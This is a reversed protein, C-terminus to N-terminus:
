VWAAPYSFINEKPQQHDRQHANQWLFIDCIYGSYEEQIKRLNALATRNPHITTKITTKNVNKIKVWVRPFIRWNSQTWSFDWQSKRALVGRFLAGVFCVPHAISLDKTGCQACGYCNQPKTETLMSAIMRPWSINAFSMNLCKNYSIAYNNCIYVHTKKKRKEHHFHQLQLFNHFMNQHPDGSQLEKAMTPQHRAKSAMASHLASFICPASTVYVLAILM